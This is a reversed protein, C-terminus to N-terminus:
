PKHGKQRKLRGRYWGEPIPSEKDHVICKEGNTIYIKGKSFPEIGMRAKSIKEAVEQPLPGVKLGKNWSKQKMIESQKKKSEESWPKLKKGLNSRKRKHDETQKKGTLANKVSLIRAEESTIQGSM